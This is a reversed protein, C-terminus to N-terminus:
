EQELGASPGPPQEVGGLEMSRLACRLAERADQLAREANSNTGHEPRGPARIGVLLQHVKDHAEWARRYTLHATEPAERAGACAPCNQPLPQPLARSKRPPKTM